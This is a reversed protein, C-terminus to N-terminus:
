TAATRLCSTHDYRLVVPCNVLSASCLRRMSGVGPSSSVQTCNDLVAPHVHYQESQGAWTQTIRGLANGLDLTSRRAGAMLAKTSAPAELTANTATSSSGATPPSTTATSCTLHTTRAASMQSQVSCRGSSGDLSVLLVGDGTIPLLLPAPISVGVFTPSGAAAALASGAGTRTLLLAGASSAMEIM